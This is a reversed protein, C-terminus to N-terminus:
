DENLGDLKAKRAPDGEGGSCHTQQGLKTCVSGDSGHTFKGLETWSNGKNDFTTNGLRTYTTGDTGNVFAGNRNWSAGRSDYLSNGVRTVTSGDSCHKQKGIDTCTVQGAAASGAVLFSLLLAGAMMAKM